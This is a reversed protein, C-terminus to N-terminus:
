LYEKNICKSMIRKITKRDLRCFLACEPENHVLLFLINYRVTHQEKNCKHSICEHMALWAHCSPAYTLALVCTYMRVHTLFPVFLYVTTNTRGSHTFTHTHTHTHTHMQCELMLLQHVAWVCWTRGTARPATDACLTTIPCKSASVCLCKSYPRVCDCVCMCHFHREWVHIRFSAPKLIFLTFWQNYWLAWNSRIPQRGPPHSLSLSLFLSLSLSLSLTLSLSLSSWTMYDRCDEHSIHDPCVLPLPLCYFANPQWRDRHGWHWVTPQWAWAM